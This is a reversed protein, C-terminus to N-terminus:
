KRQYGLLLTSSLLVMMTGAEQLVIALVPTLLGMGGLLIGIINFVISFFINLKIRRVVARSLSIFEAVLGLDEQMLVVDATEAAFDAGSVGMAVGIDACTLAPGDNIGDGVMAVCHRQDHAQRVMQEKEGPLLNGFYRHLGSAKAMHEATSQQDGSLLIVNESGLLEQLNQVAAVASPRLADSFSLIGVLRGDVAVAVHSSDCPPFSQGDDGIQTSVWTLTGAIVQKGDVQAKVGLGTFSTFQKANDIALGRREAESRIAKAYPHASDREAAATLALVREESEEGYLRIEHISPTGTTLTGTKDMMLVNLKGGLEFSDGGKILVGKKTMNAMAASMATPTGIALACPAAVLLISVAISVGRTLIYGVTAAGLMIPLYWATFRDITKQIPAKREQAVNVMQAIQSFITDEPETTAQISLKGTENLTGAFITDGPQKTIPMAEGTIVAENVEGAGELIIGDAPIREGPRVLLIDGPRIDQISIEVEQGKEVLCATKPALSLLQRITRSSKDMTYGEVAGAIAMIFIVIAASLFEGILMTALLSVSVFVDVTIKRDLFLDKVGRHFRNGGGLFVALLAISQAIEASTGGMRELAASIVILIGVCFPILALIVLEQKKTIQDYSIGTDVKKLLDSGCAGSRKLAELLIDYFSM